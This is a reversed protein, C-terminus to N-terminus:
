KGLTKGIFDVFVPSGRLESGMAAADDLTQETTWDNRKANRLAILLVARAGTACHLLHPGETEVLAKEVKDVLDTTLAAKDVPISVYNLDSKSVLDKNLAVTEAPLRLDIVTRIGQQEALELDQATPQPGLFIDNGVFRFNEM